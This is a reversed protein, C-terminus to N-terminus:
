AGCTKAAFEKGAQALSNKLDEFEFDPFNTELNVESGQVDLHAVTTAVLSLRLEDGVDGKDEVSAAGFVEYQPKLPKYDFPVALMGANSLNKEQKAFAVFEPSTDVFVMGADTCPAFLDNILLNRLQSPPPNASVLNNTFEFSTITLISGRALLGAHGAAAKARLKLKSRVGVKHGAKVREPTSFASLESEGDAANSAVVYTGSPVALNFAGSNATLAFAGIKGQSSVAMVAPFEAGQPLAGLSGGIKGSRAQAIPSCLALSLAAALLFLGLRM